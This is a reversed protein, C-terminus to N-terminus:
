CWNKKKFHINVGFKIKASKSGIISIRRYIKRV